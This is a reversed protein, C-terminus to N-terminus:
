LKVRASIAFLSSFIAIFSCMMGHGYPSLDTFCERSVKTDPILKTRPARSNKIEVTVLLEKQNFKSMAHSM